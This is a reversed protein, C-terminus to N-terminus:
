DRPSRNFLIYGFNFLVSWPKDKLDYYSASISAPGFPSHYVLASTAMYLPVNSFDYVPRDGTTAVIRGFANFVYGEARLDVNRGLAMVLQMGAAVYNHARFAPMFFTRSEPLPQFVSAAISSALFNKFFSQNSAVAEMMLGLRFSRKKFFYNQYMLKAVGWSHWMNSTDRIASTSGPITSEMGTVWKVQLKLLTGASAWQQRNLTTREWVAKAVFAEFNTRDATDVSLFNQTQYYEDFQYTYMADLRVMGKNGAPVTFALGGFRENLLVFSPKVDEFFTSLSRYFDWRNQTFYGQMSFPRKGALDWRLGVHLSAYFRGFYSNAMLTGASAGFLHYKMGVYGTNISRSAFNGGVGVFIDKEKKVNLILRYKGTVPNYSSTPFVSAIKDDEFIRFYPEKLNRLETVQLGRQIIKQVYQNQTRTLGTVDVGEIILPQQRTRFAKRRASLLQPDRRSDIMVLISKLSDRTAAEGADIAQGIDEWDFTGIGPLNPKVVIMQECLVNPTERFLIMSQLQSLLDDEEPPTTDASVNCGLIVDPMFERYLLDAPFNNFIGGDYLLVGDVRLPPLYFPYTSSARAAVNLPGNRFIIQQKHEVDAAICRFPVFLSDFDGGSIMDAGAFGEMLSWDLLVPNILNTPLANSFFRGESYKVHAMEATQESNKFYFRYKEDYEGQAMQLFERSRCLSDIERTSYGSAYMAAIVAGMSTGGIFDIPINEAELVKLFGVHAMATAGGGSLVVGVKQAGCVQTILVCLLLLTCRIIHIPFCNM